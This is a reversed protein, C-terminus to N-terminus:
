DLDIYDRIDLDNLKFFYNALEISGLDLNYKFTLYNRFICQAEIFQGFLFDLKNDAFQICREGCIGYLFRLFDDNMRNELYFKTLEDETNLRLLKVM